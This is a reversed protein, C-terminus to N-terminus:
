LSGLNAFLAIFDLPFVAMANRLADVRLLVSPDRDVMLGSVGALHLTGNEAVGVRVAAGPSERLLVHIDLANKCQIYPPNVLKIIDIIRRHM